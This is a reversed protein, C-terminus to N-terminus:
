KPHLVIFPNFQLVSIEKRLAAAEAVRDGVGDFLAAIRDALGNRPVYIHLLGCPREFVTLFDPDTNYITQEDLKFSTASRLAFILTKYQVRDPVQKPTRDWTVTLNGDSDLRDSVDGKWVEKPLLRFTAHRPKDQTYSVVEALVVTEAALLDTLNFSSVSGCAMAASASLVALAAAVFGLGRAMLVPGGFGAAGM